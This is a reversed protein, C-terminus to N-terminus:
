VRTTYIARLANLDTNNQPLSEGKAWRYITRSSVRGEMAESIAQPSMEAHDLLYIVMEKATKTITQNQTM